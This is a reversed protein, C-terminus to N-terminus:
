IFVLKYTGIYTLYARVQVVTGQCIIKGNFTCGNCGYKYPPKVEGKKKLVSKGNECIRIKTKKIETVDGENIQYTKGGNKYTCTKAEGSESQSSVPTFVGLVLVFVISIMIGKMSQIEVLLQQEIAVRSTHLNFSSEGM